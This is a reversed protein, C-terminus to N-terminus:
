NIKIIYIYNHIYLFTQMCTLAGAQPFNFKVNDGADDIKIYM